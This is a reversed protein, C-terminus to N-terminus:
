DSKPLLGQAELLRDLSDLLDNIEKLLDTEPSACAHLVADVQEQMDEPLLTCNELAFQLQRKEGPHPLQNVAFLIDFYSALLAAVRHNVSLADGRQIAKEIQHLYASITQRLIPYNKAIVARQLASPYPLSARQQIGTFWGSRDFLILSTLVNHWFATSYGVSAECRVLVRDIQDKIWTCDRFMVDIGILLDADIWEDGLEWYQNDVEARLANATAITRRAAVPLPASLYVYLDLDSAAQAAGTTQSGALAVAEVQPYLAYQAAIKQALALRSPEPSQILFTQM